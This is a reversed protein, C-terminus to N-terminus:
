YNLLPGAFEIWIRSMQHDLKSMISSKLSMELFNQLNEAKLNSNWFNKKIVLVNKEWLLFSCNQYNFVM